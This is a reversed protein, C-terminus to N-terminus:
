WGSVVFAFCFLSARTYSKIAMEQDTDICKRGTKVLGGGGKM